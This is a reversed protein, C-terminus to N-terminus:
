VLREGTMEQFEKMIEIEGERLANKPVKAYYGCTLAALVFCGIAAATLVIAPLWIIGNAVLSPTITVIAIEFFSIFVYALGYDELTKTKFSPDVVRLLTVGIAVVGTNWGYVFISREFWFNHFLRPGCLLCVGVCLVAGFTFLMAMPIAYKVVVSIQISAVGFAVLYDTVWSGIRNTIHKDVYHGLKMGDLLKQIVVGSLMSLCMMPIEYKGPLMSKTFTYVFYGIAFAAMVLAFHWTFPDLAIPNVTEKGMPVREREPVFGTLMSEPLDKVDKVLRTWGKRTAINILIMGGILGTLLGVTASTYGVTLAEDWGYNQFTQGIATAYGHGGVFGAPLMIAFGQNLDPFLPALVILGFLLAVGFQWFESGMNYFFTDGIDKVMSSFKVKPANEEKGLFLTAFLVVVLLYPYSSMYPNGKDNVAFPLIDLFQWGLFLAIFGAILSSPMYIIQFLKVKSRILHSIFLIISMIGFDMLMEYPGFM